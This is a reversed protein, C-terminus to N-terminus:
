VKLAPSMTGRTHTYGQGALAPIEPWYDSMSGFSPRGPLPDPERNALNGDKLILYKFYFQLTYPM